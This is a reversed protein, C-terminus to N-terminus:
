RSMCVLFFHLLCYDDTCAKGQRCPHVGLAADFGDELLHLGVVLFQLGVGAGRLCLLQLVAGRVVQGVGGQGVGVQPVRLVLVDGHALQDNGLAEVEGREVDATGAQVAELGVVMRSWACSAQRSM